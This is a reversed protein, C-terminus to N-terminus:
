SQAEHRSRLAPPEPRRRKAEYGNLCPGAGFAGSKALGSDLSDEAGPSTVFRGRASAYCGRRKRLM